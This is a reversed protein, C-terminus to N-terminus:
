ESVVSGINIEDLFVRVSVDLIITPGTDPCWPGAWTLMFHVAAIPRLTTGPHRWWNKTVALFPTVCGASSCPQSKAARTEGKDGLLMAVVM